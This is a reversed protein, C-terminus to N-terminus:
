NWRPSFSRKEKSDRHPQLQGPRVPLKQKLLLESNDRYDRSKSTQPEPMGPRSKFPLPPKNQVLGGESFSPMVPRKQSHSTAPNSPKLKTESCTSSRNRPNPVPPRDSEGDAGKSATYTPDPPTLHDRHLHDQDKGRVLPKAMSGYLPNDFM